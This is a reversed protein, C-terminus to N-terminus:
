FNLGDLWRVSPDNKSINWDAFAEAVLIDYSIMPMKESTVNPVQILTKGGYHEM